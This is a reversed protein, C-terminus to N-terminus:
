LSSATIKMFYITLFVKSIVKEICFSHLQFRYILCLNEIIVRLKKTFTLKTDDKHKRLWGGVSVVKPSLSRFQMLM